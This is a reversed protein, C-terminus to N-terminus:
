LIGSIEENLSIESYELNELNTAVQQLKVLCFVTSARRLFFFEKRCLVDCEAVFGNVVTFCMSKAHM